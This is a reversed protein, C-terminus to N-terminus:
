TLTNFYNQINKATEVIAESAPNDPFQEIYPIGSDNCQSLKPDFPIKGLLTFEFTSEVTDENSFLPEREGCHHCVYYSMNEVVGIIPVNLVDRAMTVSKKVILQSVDSPITVVIVGSLSPILEVVNALRESGPPLDLLLYDLENWETDGIFERLAGVEMTSRWTFADKQSHANWLVPADDDSLLLDMSIVKVGLSNIAPKVGTSTYQLKNDRVGMMKAITPGNIDADVVGVSCGALSFATAINATVASKGVGGKGSMIAITHQVSNLRQNVRNAQAKVQGVINSGADDPLEKYSKM